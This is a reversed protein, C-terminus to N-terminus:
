MSFFLHSKNHSSCTGASVTEDSPNAHPWSWLKKDPSKMILKYILKEFVHEFSHLEVDDFSAISPLDSPRSNLDTCILATSSWHWQCIQRMIEEYCAVPILLLPIVQQKPATFTRNGGKIQDMLKKKKVVTDDGIAKGPFSAATRSGLM